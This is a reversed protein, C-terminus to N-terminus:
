KVKVRYKGDGILQLHLEYDAYMPLITNEPQTNLMAKLVIYRAQDLHIKLADNVPITLTTYQPNEVHLDTNVLAAAITQNSLLSDILVKNEDLLYGKVQLEFPFTNSALIKLAGSLYPETKTAEIGKTTLTDAFYLANASFSLPLELVSKIRLNSSNYIFDNGSSVNGLPNLNANAIFSFRQPLLEVLDKLNSNTTTFSYHKHTPIYPSDGQAIHQARSLQQTSGIIPHILNLDVGNRSAKINQISLSFDAGISNEIDLDLSIDQLRLMGSLKRMDSLNLYDNGTFDASGLYGRAFYPKVSIFKNSYNFLTQNGTASAGNGSPNLKANLNVRLQNSQIGNDGRLDLYYGSLDITKEVSSPAYLSGAEIEQNTLLLPIGDKFAKPITYDFFVKDSLTSQVKFVAEGSAIVAETLQADKFAFKVIQSLNLVQFGAPLSVTLPLSFANNFSTDPIQFLSDNPILDYTSTYRIVVPAGPESIILSDVFIDRVSLRAEALPALVDIDWSTEKDSSCSSLISLLLLLISFPLRIKKLYNM